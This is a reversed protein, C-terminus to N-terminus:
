RVKELCDLTRVNGHVKRSVDWTLVYNFLTCQANKLGWHELFPCDAHCHTPGMTVPHVVYDHVQKPM